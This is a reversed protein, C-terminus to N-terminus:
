TTLYDIMEKLDKDQIKKIYYYRKIGKEKLDNYLGTDFLQLVRSKIESISYPNSYLVADGCIETISTFPSSIVPVGNKMAEIPPYGFGENLTMYMLAFAKKYLMNLFNEEIYDYFVFREKNNLHKLFLGKNAVGIIIVKNKIDARESFLEDLAIASRLNNKIWRNGSVLLFYNEIKFTDDVLAPEEGTVDPSYFVRIDRAQYNPFYSLMSYKTHNSVAILKISSILKKFHEIKKEMFYKSMLIRVINKAKTSFKNFYSLSYLDMPLELDRLGHITGFVECNFDSLHPIYYPLASYFRTISYDDVVKKISSNKIDILTINSKKSFAIIDDDLYKSSDYVALITLNPKETNLNVFIQKAYKGGGHFKGDANAQTSTLDFLLVM